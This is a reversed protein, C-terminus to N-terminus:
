HKYSNQKFAECDFYETIGCAACSSSRCDETIQENKTKKYERLLFQKSVGPNIHEWPLISDINIKGTYSDPNVGNENFAEMWKDFNFYESWADMKCGKRWASEIVKALKRDGRNLATELYTMKFNSFSIKYHKGKLAKILLNKKEQLIEISEFGEWQFVTNPQPLFPNISLHISVPRRSTRFEQATSHIKKTLEAIELIDNETEGPLGIIYYFKLVHFGLKAVTKVTELIQENSIAKNIIKRLRESGAEIAFTLGQVREEVVMKGLQESFKDIRLSPLSISVNYKKIIKRSIAILGEIDSYDSTSLSLFTVDEYGTNNLITELENEITQLTKERVPRYVIGAQCFRCGRTCGRFIEINVKDMVTKGFPVVPKLPVYSKNIDQVLDKIVISKDKLAKITKIEGNEKNVIEFFEPVYIGRIKFMSELLEKKSKRDWDRYISVIEPFINEGEGIAFFDIFEHLPEPNYSSTGGMFIVPSKRDKSHQEIQSLDLVDLVNTFDMSTQTSFAVLDFDKISTHSEITFLPIKNQRLYKELDEGPVFAREVVAYPLENVLHYLLKFGLSSMGIEYLDPYVFAIKIKNEHSKHISNLENGFYSYPKKFKLLYRDKM